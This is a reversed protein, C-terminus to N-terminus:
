NLLFLIRQFSRQFISLLKKSIMALFKDVNLTNLIAFIGELPKAAYNLIIFFSYLLTLSMPCLLNVLQMSNNPLHLIM